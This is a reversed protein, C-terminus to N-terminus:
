LRKYITAFLAYRFVFVDTSPPCMIICVEIVSYSLFTGGGGGGWLENSFRHRLMFMNCMMKFPITQLNRNLKFKEFINQNRSKILLNERFSEGIAGSHSDSFFESKLFIFM